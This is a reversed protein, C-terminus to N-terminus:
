SLHFYMVLCLTKCSVIMTTDNMIAGFNFYGLDEVVSLPYVSHPIDMWYVIILGYLLVFVM